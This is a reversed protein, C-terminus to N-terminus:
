MSNDTSPFDVRLSSAALWEFGFGLILGNFCHDNRRRPSEVAGKIIGFLLALMLIGICELALAIVSTVKLAAPIAGDFRAKWKVELRIPLDFRRTPLPYTPTVNKM